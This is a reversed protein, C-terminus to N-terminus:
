LVVTVLDGVMKRLEAANRAVLKFGRVSNTMLHASRRAPLVLKKKAPAKLVPILINEFMAYTKELADRAFDYSCENFEKAESSKLTLDFSRVAWLEFAFLIKDKATKQSGLGENIDEIISEAYQVLAAIFVEEKNRFYMYLAPRSIGAAAAIDHMNVRRFGYKFFVNLAASLIRLRKQNDM